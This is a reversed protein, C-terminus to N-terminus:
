SAKAIDTKSFDSGVFLLPCARQRALAYAFCDGYNLGAPHVGRGWQAYAEAVKFADLKTVPAVQCGLGSILREIAPGINRRRAVVLTEALTGASIVIEAAKALADSCADAGPEDMAVAMFASTDVVIM